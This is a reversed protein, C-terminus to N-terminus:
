KLDAGGSYTEPYALKVRAKVLISNEPDMEGADALTTQIMKTIGDYQEQLGDVQDPIGQGDTLAVLRGWHSQILVIDSQALVYIPTPM